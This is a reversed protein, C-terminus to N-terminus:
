LVAFIFVQLKSFLMIEKCIRSQKSVRSFHRGIDLNSAIRVCQKIWVELHLAVTKIRDEINQNSKIQQSMGYNKFFIDLIYIM